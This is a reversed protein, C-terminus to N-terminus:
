KTAPFGSKLSLTRNFVLHDGTSESDVVFFGIREFQFRDGQRATALAPELLVEKVVLSERNIDDRWDGAVAMPDASKFLTSYMRAEARIHGDSAWHIYTAAKGPVSKCRVEVVRGNEKIVNEVAIVLNAYKLGVPKQPTLRKFSKRVEAPVEDADDLFDEREIYVVGSVVLSRTGDEPKKPFLPATVTAPAVGEITIRLPDVVAFARPATEDLEQRQVQELKEYDIFSRVNRTYGIGKVLAKIASPTFGRRRFGAITPMRPDDWGTVLKEQVLTQLRRKSMVTHTLNLRSFEWVFPKYIGLADLVWYYPERRNEFELTCLSHSVGELSDVVCHSYDYTPYICWTDHTRPHSKYVVRYAVQDHMNRNDSTYDMKLRLTAESPSYYGVRMLEFERLSEAIPRDRWPSPTRQERSNKVEAKTQHCVYALGKKILAIAFDYLQQFYDSTHTIACWKFGMWQVDSKIGEIFEDKEKDPNTDDFRMFCIGKKLEALGYDLYMAKAHGIHIWGNPEPPFRTRYSGGTKALYAAQVEPSNGMANDAPSPFRAVIGQFDLEPEEQPPPATTQATPATKATPPSTAAKKPPTTPAADFQSLATKVRDAVKQRSAFKMNPSFSKVGQLVIGVAAKAGKQAIADSSQSVVATVAADIDADSVTVGVGSAENFEEPNYTSHSSVFDLAADIQELTKLRGDGIARALDPIQPLDKQCIKQLLPGRSKWLDADAAPVPSPCGAAEIASLLRATVKQNKLLKAIEADPIGISQLRVSPDM